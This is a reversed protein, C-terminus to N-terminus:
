RPITYKLGNLKGIVYHNIMKPPSVPALAFLSVGLRKLCVALINDCRGCTDLADLKKYRTKMGPLVEACACKGLVVVPEHPLDLISASRSAEQRELLQGGLAGPCQDRIKLSPAEIM